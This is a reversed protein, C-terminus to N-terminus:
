WICALCIRQHLRGVVVRRQIENVARVWGISAMRREAPDPAALVAFQFAVPVPDVNIGITRQTLGIARDHVSRSALDGTGRHDRQEVRQDIAMGSGAPDIDHQIVGDVNVDPRGRPLKPV